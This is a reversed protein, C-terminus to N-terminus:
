KITLNDIRVDLESDGNSTVFCLKTGVLTLGNIIQAQLGDISASITTPTVILSLKKSTGLPIDFGPFSSNNNNYYLGTGGNGNGYNMYYGNPINNTLGTFGFCISLVTNPNVRSIDVDLAYNAKTADWSVTAIRNVLAKFAMKGGMIYGNGTEDHGVAGYEPIHAAMLTNDPATFTDNVIYLPPAITFAVTNPTDPSQEALNTAKYAFLIGGVAIDADPLQVMVGNPTAPLYDGAGIKVLVDAITKVGAFTIQQTNATDNAIGLVPAAQQAKIVSVTTLATVPDGTGGAGPIATLRYTKKHTEGAYNFPSVGTFGPVTIFDATGFLAAELTLVPAPNAAVNFTIPIIDGVNVSVPASFAIIQPAIVADYLAATIVDTEGFQNIATFKAVTDETVIKGGVNSTVGNIVSTVSTANKFRAFLFVKKGAIQPTLVPSQDIIQPPSTSIPSDSFVKLIGNIDHLCILVEGTAKERYLIGNISVSHGATEPIFLNYAGGDESGTITFNTDAILNPTIKKNSGTSVDWILSPLPEYGLLSYNTKLATIYGQAQKLADVVKNIEEGSFKKPGGSNPITDVKAVIGTLDITDM